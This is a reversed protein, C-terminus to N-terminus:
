SLSYSLHVGTANGGSINGIRLYRPPNTMNPTILDFSNTNFATGEFHSDSKTLISVKTWDGTLTDKDSGIVRLDVNSTSYGFIKCNPYGKTDIVIDNAQNNNIAVNTLLKGHREKGSM